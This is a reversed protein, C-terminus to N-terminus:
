PKAIVVKRLYLTTEGGGNAKTDLIQFDGLAPMGIHAPISLQDNQVPLITFEEDRIDVLTKQDSFISNDESLVDLEETTYIGRGTFSSGIQPSFTVPRAFTDYTHQHVQQSFNVAM